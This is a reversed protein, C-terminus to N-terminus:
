SSFHIFGKREISLEEGDADLLIIGPELTVHGIATVPIELIRSVKNIAGINGGPSTFLLEYDEGGSLALQYQDSMFDSIRKRYSSSLPIQGLSIRAGLGHELTIRELDLILGDSIDIMSSVLRRKALERGLALRPQPATYRGILHEDEKGGALLTKLGLASDGLTGSVYIIDGASAGTRKVMIDPEVEGLVTVDVFLRESASINGGILELEFERGAAEFGDLLGEWFDEGDDKSFGLSALFFKPVGGMAGIDSVSVAVARRGLQEASILRKIFHVDEVQSDTTVLLQKEPHIKVAAADDGIGLTVSKSVNRFREKIRRLASLEDIM